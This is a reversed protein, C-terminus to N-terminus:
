LQKELYYRTINEKLPFEEMIRFDMEKYLKCAAPNNTYLGIVNMGAEKAYDFMNRFLASAIGQKRYIRQVALLTAHAKKTVKDNCYFACMGVIKGNVRCIAFLAYRSLKDYYNRVNIRELLPPVFDQEVSNIFSQFESFSFL